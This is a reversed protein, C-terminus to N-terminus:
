NLHLSRLEVENKRVGAAMAASAVAGAARQRRAALAQGVPAARKVVALQGHVDGPAKAVLKRGETSGGEGAADAPRDALVGLALERALRAKADKVEAHLGIVKVEDDFGTVATGEGGSKATKGDPDGAPHIALKAGAAVDNPVAVVLTRQPSGALDAAGDHINKLVMAVVDAGM